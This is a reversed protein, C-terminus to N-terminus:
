KTGLLNFPFFGWRSFFQSVLFGLSPSPVLWHSSQLSIFHFIQSCHCSPKKKFTSPFLLPFLLFCQPWHYQNQPWLNTKEWAWPIRLHCFLKLIKAQDLPVHHDQFTILNVSPSITWIKDMHAFLNNINMFDYALWLVLSFFSCWIKASTSSGFNACRYDHFLNEICVIQCLQWQPCMPLLCYAGEVDSKRFLISWLSLSSNILHHSFIKLSDLPISVLNKNILDDPSPNGYSMDTRVCPKSSDKKFSVCLPSVKMGSLFTFFCNM